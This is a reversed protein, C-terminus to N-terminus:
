PRSSARSVARSADRLVRIKDHAIKVEARQRAVIDRQKPGLEATLAADYAKVAADEAAECESLITSEDCGTVAAKVNMWGRRMAGRVSGGQEPRGGIRRIEAQLESAFQVREQAYAHFLLRLEANHRVGEAAARFGNEGDKCTEILNNLASIARQSHYIM